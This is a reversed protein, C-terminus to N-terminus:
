GKKKSANLKKMNKSAAARAKASVTRPKGIKIWAKPVDVEWGGQYCERAGPLKKIKSIWSPDCSWLNATKDLANFNIITEREVMAPM